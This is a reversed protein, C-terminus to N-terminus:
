PARRRVAAYHLSSSPATDAGPVVDRAELDLCDVLDLGAEDLQREQADRDVYYMVMRHEHVGDNVLAYGPGAAQYPRTRRRNALRAPVTRLWWARGILARAHGRGTDLPPLLRDPRGLVALHALNHSSFLLLGGPRLIRRLEALAHRRQADGFIDLLNDAAVVADLAADPLATLDRLDGVDVRAAPVNRRCAEVMRPSVDVAQVDRALAVLVRTLRGAGCGLELVSGSLAARHRALLVAEALNVGLGSYAAVFDGDAWTATNRAAPDWREDPVAGGYVAPGTWPQSGIHADPRLPVGLPTDAWPGDERFGSDQRTM